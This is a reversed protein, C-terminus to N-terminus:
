VFPIHRPPSSLRPLGLIRSLQNRTVYRWPAKRPDVLATGEALLISKREIIAVPVIRGGAFADSSIQYLSSRNTESRHSKNPSVPEMLDVSTDESRVLIKTSSRGLSGCEAIVRREIIISMSTVTHKWDQGLFPPRFHASKSGPAPIKPPVVYPTAL